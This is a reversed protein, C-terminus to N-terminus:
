RRRRRKVDVRKEKETKKKLFFWVMAMEEGEKIKWM